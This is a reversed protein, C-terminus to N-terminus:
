GPFSPVGVLLPESPNWISLDCLCPRSYRSKHASGVIGSLHKPKGYISGLYVEFGRLLGTPRIGGEWCTLTGGEGGPM